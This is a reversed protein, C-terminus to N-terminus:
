EMPDTWIDYLSKPRNTLQLLTALEAHVDEPFGQRNGRRDILLNELQTFIEPTKWLAIINSLLHPFQIELASLTQM